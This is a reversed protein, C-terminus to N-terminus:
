TITYSAWESLERKIRTVHAEIIKKAREIRTNAVYLQERFCLYLEKYNEARELEMIQSATYKHQDNPLPLPDNM